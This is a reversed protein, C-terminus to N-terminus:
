HAAAISYQAENWECLLAVLTRHALQHITPSTRERGEGHMVATGKTVEDQAVHFLQGAFRDM